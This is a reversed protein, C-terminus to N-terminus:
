REIRYGAGRVTVLWDAAGGARMLKERVHHVHVDVGRPDRYADDGYIAQLLEARSRVAGDALLLAELVAFESRTLTVPRDGVRVSRAAPDVALPGLRLPGTAEGNATAETQRRLRRLAARVRSRLEAIGVPKTVYDDAGAELALVVDAETDRATLMMVYVDGDALRLRRCVEVGDPGPGLAVDLLVVDHGDGALRELAARGDGALEVRHGDASLAAAMAQRLDEDDEVLLIRADM